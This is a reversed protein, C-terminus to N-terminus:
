ELVVGPLLRGEARRQAKLRQGLEAPTSGCVVLSLGRRQALESLDTRRIAQFGGGLGQQIDWTRGYTQRLEALTM